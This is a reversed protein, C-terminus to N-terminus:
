YKAVPFGISACQNGLLLVLSLYEGRGAVGSLFRHLVGCYPTVWLIHEM